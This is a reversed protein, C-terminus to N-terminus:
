GLGAERVLERFEAILHDLEIRRQAARAEIERRARDFWDIGRSRALAADLKMALWDSRNLEAIEVRLSGILADLREVEARVREAAVAVTGPGSADLRAAIAKLAALDFCAYAQNIEIMLAGRASRDDDGAALDPHARKALDRYLAKLDLQTATDPEPRHARTARGAQDVSERYGEFQARRGRLQWDVEAELRVADLAKGRLRILENRLRYEAIHLALAERDAQAPGVRASYEQRFTDIEIQLDAREQELQAALERRADLEVQGQGDEM